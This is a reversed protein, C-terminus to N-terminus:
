KHKKNFRKPMNRLNKYHESKKCLKCTVDERYLANSYHSKAGCVVETTFPILVHTKKM